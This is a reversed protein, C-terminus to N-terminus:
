DSEAVVEIGTGGGRRAWVGAQRATAAQPFPGMSQPSGDAARWRLYYRVQGARWFAIRKRTAAIDRHEPGLVRLRDVLLEELARAAGARDGAAGRTEAISARTALTERHDPGLVRLREALLERLARM